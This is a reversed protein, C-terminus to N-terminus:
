DHFRYGIGASARLSNKGAVKVWDYQNRFIWGPGGPTASSGANNLVVDFGGGAGGAGGNNAQGGIHSRHMGVMAHAFLILRRHRYLGRLGFLLTAKTVDVGADTGGHVSSDVLVGLGHDGFPLAVELSGHGGRHASGTLMGFGGFISAVHDNARATAPVLLLLLVVACCPHLRM